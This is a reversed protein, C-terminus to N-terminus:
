TVSNHIDQVRTEDTKDGYCEFDFDFDHDLDLVFDSYVAVAFLILM